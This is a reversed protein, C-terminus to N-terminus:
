VRNGGERTNGLAGPLPDDCAGPDARGLPHDPLPDYCVGGWLNQYPTTAAGVEWLPRGLPDVGQKDPLPDDSRERGRGKGSTQYLDDGRERGKEVARPESDPLPDDSADVGGEWGSASPIPEWM